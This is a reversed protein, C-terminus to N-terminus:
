STIKENKFPAKHNGKENRDVRYLLPSVDGYPRKCHLLQKNGLYKM